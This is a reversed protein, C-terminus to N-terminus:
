PPKQPPYPPSILPLQMMNGELGAVSGKPSRNALDAAAAAGNAANPCVNEYERSAAAGFVLGGNPFNIHVPTNPVLYGDSAEQATPLPQQQQQLPLLPLGNSGAGGNCNVNEYEPLAPLGDEGDLDAAAAAAPQQQQQLSTTLSSLRGRTPATLAAAGGGM